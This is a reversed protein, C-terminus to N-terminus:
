FLVRVFLNNYIYGEHENLKKFGNLNLFSAGARYGYGIPFRRDKRFVTHSLEIGIGLLNKTFYNESFDGESRYRRGYEIGLTSNNLITNGNRGKMYYGVGFHASSVFIASLQEQEVGLIDLKSNITTNAFHVAYIFSHKTTTDRRHVYLLSSNSVLKFLEGKYPELFSKSLPQEEKTTPYSREVGLGFSYFIGSQSFLSSAMMIFFATILINKM